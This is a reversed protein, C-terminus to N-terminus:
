KLAAEMKMNFFNRFTELGEGNAREYNKVTAKIKESWKKAEPYKSFDAIKDGTASITTYSSLLIYDAITPATTGAM